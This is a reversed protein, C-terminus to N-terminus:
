DEFSITVSQDSQSKDVAGVIRTGLNSNYKNLLVGTKINENREMEIHAIIPLFDPYLEETRKFYQHIFKKYKKRYWVCFGDITIPMVPEDTVRQGERGVYQINVWKSAEEKIEEKYENWAKEIAEPTKFIRNPHINGNAGM